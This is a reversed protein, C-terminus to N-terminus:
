PAPQFEVAFGGGTVRELQALAILYHFYAENADIKMKTATAGSFLVDEVRPPLPEKMPDFQFGARASVAFQDRTYKAFKDAETAAKMLKEAKAKAEKWQLFANEAEL